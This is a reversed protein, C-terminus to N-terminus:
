GWLDPWFVGLQSALDRLLPLSVGIVSHPDGTVARIFPGGFGDITFSGAVNLPEGTDIYAEIEADSIQGFHIITSAAAVRGDGIRWGSPGRDLPLLAHGTWLVAETGRMEQIRERAVEPTHPKGVLRGNIFLMSDAGLILYRDADNLTEGSDKTNLDNEVEAAVAQAKAEALACVVADPGVDPNLAAAVADEDVDSAVVIPDIGAHRLVQLRAPSKSGLVLRVPRTVKAATM